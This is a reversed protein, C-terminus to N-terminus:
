NPVVSIQFQEAYDGAVAATLNDRSFRIELSANSAGDCDETQSTRGDFFYLNGSGSSQSMTDGAATRYNLEYAPTKGRADSQTLAIQLRYHGTNSAVCLQTTSRLEGVGIWRLPANPSQIIQVSAAPAAVENALVASCTFSLVGSILATKIIHLKPM